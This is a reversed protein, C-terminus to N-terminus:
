RAVNQVALLPCTHLLQVVHKHVQKPIYPMNLVAQLQRFPIAPFIEMITHVITNVNLETQTNRLLGNFKATDATPVAQVATM